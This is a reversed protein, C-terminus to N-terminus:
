FTFVYKCCIWMVHRKDPHHVVLCGYRGGCSTEENCKRRKVLSNTTKRLAPNSTTLNSCSSSDPGGNAVWDYSHSWTSKSVIADHCLSTRSVRSAAYQAQFGQTDRHLAHPVPASACSGCRPRLRISPGTAQQLTIETQAYIVHTERSINGEM